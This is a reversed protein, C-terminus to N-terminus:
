KDKSGYNVIEIGINGSHAIEQKDTQGLYNKGRFIAVSPQKKQMRRQDAHLEERGECGKQHLRQLYHQRLHDRSIGLAGAITTHKCQDKAMRDMRKLQALTLFTERPRAM